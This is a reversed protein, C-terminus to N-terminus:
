NDNFGRGAKWEIYNAKTFLYDNVHNEISTKMTYVSNMAISQSYRWLRFAMNLNFTKKQIQQMIDSLVQSPDEGKEKLYDWYNQIDNLVICVSREKLRTTKNNDELCQICKKVHASDLTVLYMEELEVGTKSAKSYCYELIRQETEGFGPACDIVILSSVEKTMQEEIFGEVRKVFLEEALKQHNLFYLEGYQSKNKMNPSLYAVYLTGRIRGSKLVIGKPQGTKNFSDESPLTGEAFLYSTATGLIDLDLYFVNEYEKTRFLADICKSFSFTTKGTGGKFSNIFIIKKKVSEDSSKKKNNQKENNNQKEKDNQTAM